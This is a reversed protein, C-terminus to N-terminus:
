TERNLHMNIVKDILKNILEEFTPDIIKKVPVKTSIQRSQRLM